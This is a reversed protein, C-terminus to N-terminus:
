NRQSGDFYTPKIQAALAVSSISYFLLTWQTDFAQFNDCRTANLLSHTWPRSICNKKKVAKRHHSLWKHHWSLPWTGSVTIGYEATSSESKSRFQYWGIRHSDFHKASFFFVVLKGMALRLYRSLYPDLDFVNEPDFISAIKMFADHCRLNGLM